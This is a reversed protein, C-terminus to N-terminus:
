PMHGSAHHGHDSVQAAFWEHIAMVLKPDKAKYRIEAGDSLAAYSVDIKSTGAKLEALWPMSEGHIKAPDSFDGKCFRESEQKLHAQILAIQTLGPKVSV